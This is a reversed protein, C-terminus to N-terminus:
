SSRRRHYQSGKVFVMYTSHNRYISLQEDGWKPDVLKRQQMVHMEDYLPVPIEEEVWRSMRMLRGSRIHDQIKVIVGLRSVRWAERTGARVTSELEGLSAFSGFQSGMVSPKGKGMNSVYPPDFVTIDFANDAFPLRTFDACIDKARVPNIDVGVIADRQDKPWFNGRGYTSDLISKQDPFCVQM